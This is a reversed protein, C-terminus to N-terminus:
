LGSELFSSMFRRMKRRAAHRSDEAVDAWIRAVVFCSHLRRQTLRASSNGSHALCWSFSLRMRASYHQWHSIVRCGFSANLSAVVVVVNVQAVVVGEQLALQFQVLAAGFQDLHFAAHKDAKRAGHARVAQV